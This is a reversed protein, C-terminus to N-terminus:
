ELLRGKENLLLGRGARVFLQSGLEDEFGRLASSVAAQSVCLLEAVERMNPNRALALFVEMHRLTM